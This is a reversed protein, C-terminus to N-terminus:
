AAATEKADRYAALTRVFKGPVENLTRALKAMPADCHKPLAGATLWLARADALWAPDVADGVPMRARLYACRVLM